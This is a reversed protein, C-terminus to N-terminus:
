IWKNVKENMTCNKVTNKLSEMGRDNGQWERTAGLPRRVGMQRGRNYGNAKKLTYAFWSKFAIFLKEEQM